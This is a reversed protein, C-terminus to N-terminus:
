PVIDPDLSNSRALLIYVFSQKRKRQTPRGSDTGRKGREREMENKRDANAHLTKMFSQLGELFSILRMSALFTIDERENLNYSISNPVILILHCVCEDVSKIIADM